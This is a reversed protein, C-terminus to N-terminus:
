TAQRPTTDGKGGSLRQLIVQPYEVAVRHLGRAQAALLRSRWAARGPCQVPRLLYDSIAKRYIRSMDKVAHEALYRAQAYTLRDCQPMYAITGSAGLREVLSEEKLIFPEQDQADLWSMPKFFFEAVEDPLESQVSPTVYGHGALEAAVERLSYSRGV